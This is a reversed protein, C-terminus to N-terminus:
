PVPMFVVREHDPLEGGLRYLDRIRLARTTENTKFVYCGTMSWGDATRAFLYACLWRKTM